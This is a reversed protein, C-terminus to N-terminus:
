RPGASTVSTGVALFVWRRYALFRIVTGLAISTVNAIQLVFADDQGLGHRVFAVVALGQLLTVTNVVAFVLYEQRV